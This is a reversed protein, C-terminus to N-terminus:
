KPPVPPFLCADRINQLKLLQMILRELSITFGGHPPLGYQHATLYKKFKEINMGKKQMVKVQEKYSHIRQGGGGVSMGRFLLIFRKATGPINNDEMFYFTSDKLPQNTIFLFESGM